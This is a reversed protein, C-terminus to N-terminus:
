LIYSYFCVHDNTWEKVVFETIKPKIVPTMQVKIERTAGDTTIAECVYVGEDSVDISEIYYMAISEYRFSVFM